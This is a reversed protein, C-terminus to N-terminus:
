GLPAGHFLNDDLVGDEVRRELFGAAVVAEVFVIVDGVLGDDAAPRAAVEHRDGRGALLGLLGEEVVQRGLLLLGFGIV